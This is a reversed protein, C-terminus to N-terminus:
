KKPPRKRSVVIFAETLSVNVSRSCVKCELVQRAPEYIVGTPILLGGRLQGRPAADREAVSWKTVRTLDARGLSTLLLRSALESGLPFWLYSHYNSGQSYCWSM